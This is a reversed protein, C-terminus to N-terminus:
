FTTSIGTTKIRSIGGAPLNTRVTQKSISTLNMDTQYMATKMSRMPVWSIGPKKENAIIENFRAFAKSYSDFLEIDVQSDDSTSWDFIVGYVKM